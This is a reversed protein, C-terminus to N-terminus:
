IMMIAVAPMIAAASNILSDNPPFINNKVEAQTLLLAYKARSSESSLANTDISDLIALASDPCSEMVAEARSLREADIDRACAMLVATLIVVIYSLIRM